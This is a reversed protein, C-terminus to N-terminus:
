KLGAFRAVKRSCPQKMGKSLLKETLSYDMGDLGLIVVRRRKIVRWLFLLGLVM